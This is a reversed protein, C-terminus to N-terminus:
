KPLMSMPGYINNRLSVNIPILTKLVVWRNVLIEFACEINIRRQSHYFNFVDKPCSSVAKFPLTM